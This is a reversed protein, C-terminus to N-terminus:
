LFTSKHNVKWSGAFPPVLIVFLVVCFFCSLGTFNFLFQTGCECVYQLLWSAKWQVEQFDSRMLGLFKVIGGSNIMEKQGDDYYPADQRWPSM